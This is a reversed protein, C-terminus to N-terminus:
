SIDASSPTASSATTMLADVLLSVAVASIISAFFATEILVVMPACSNAVFPTESAAPATVFVAPTELPDFFTITLPKPSLYLEVVIFPKGKGESSGSYLFMEKPNKSVLTILFIPTFLTKVASKFPSTPPAFISM